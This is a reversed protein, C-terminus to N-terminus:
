WVYNLQSLSSNTTFSCEWQFSIILTWGTESQVKFNDLGCILRCGIVLGSIGPHIGRPRMNKHIHVRETTWQGQEVIKQLIQYYAIAVLFLLKYRLSLAEKWEGISHSIELIESFINSPYRLLCYFDFEQFLHASFTIFRYSFLYLLALVGPNTM